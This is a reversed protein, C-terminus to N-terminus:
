QPAEAILMNTIIESGTEEVQATFKDVIHVFINYATISVIAIALGFATTILAEFIGGAVLQANVEAAKAIANFAGIMGSVTGLFGTIPAISGIAILLNFGNELGNIRESAETEMAREMRHEGLHHVKIGAMFIQAGIKRKSCAQCYDIAAPLNGLSIKNLIVQKIDRIKLNHILLYITRELIISITAISFILLPWMAWGGLQFLELLSM